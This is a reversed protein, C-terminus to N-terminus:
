PLFPILPSPLGLNWLYEFILYCLVGTFLAWLLAIIVGRRNRPKVTMLWSFVFLALGSILGVLWILFPLCLLLALTRNGEQAIVPWRLPFLKSQLRRFYNLSLVTGATLAVFAAAITFGSYGALLAVALGVGGGFASFAAIVFDAKTAEQSHNGRVTRYMWFGSIVVLVATVLAAPRDLLQIRDLEVLRTTIALNRELFDGLVFAIVLPVRPWNYRKLFYGLAGFLIASTIDLLQGNLQILLLLSFVLVPLTLHQLPINKLKALQPTAAVGVLSTLLNSFLLAFILTFTLPLQSGLMTTGPVMGHMFLVTVLFVGAESGPLGFAIAPLLSGGDKADIAAEPAILGRIDGDGFRSSDGASQTAHGYAIFCAVTGGVGPVIGVLTGIISSRLSLWRHQFVALIGRKVSDEGPSQAVKRTSEFSCAQWSIIEAITFFGLLAPITGIGQVLQESGLTWRSNGTVPDSGIMSLLLGLICMIAAKAKSSNPVAVITTLGWIGLLLRELPGVQAIVPQLIPILLILVLVGIVSGVASATAACSIATKPYGHQSLPFGDLLTAANPAGGPINFLIATISGMFTAGGVMAGFLLLVSESTWSATLVLVIAMISAGGIGPLFAVIMALLTGLIPILIGPWSFTNSLGILIADLM